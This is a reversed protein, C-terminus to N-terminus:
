ATRRVRIIRRRLWVRRAGGLYLRTRALEWHGYEAHDALVQRVDARSTERPFTLVRFEYETM